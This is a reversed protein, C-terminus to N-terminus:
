RVPGETRQSGLARRRRGRLAWERSNHASDRGSEGGVRAEVGLMDCNGVGSGTNAIRKMAWLIIKKVM